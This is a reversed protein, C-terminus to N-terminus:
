DDGDRPAAAPFKAAPRLTHRPMPVPSNMGKVSKWIMENVLVPDASDPHKFDMGAALHALRFAETGPVLTRMAPNLEGVIAADPLIASYPAANGPATDFDLITHATADYLSLPPVGLLQEMTKLVSDTNYFTHDVSNAKIYPSVVYCTSRHADVHDQGDQADDEIVFIATNKWIASHSILDVFQGVGYDNDAVHARPSPDGATTGDTHDSMFRVTLFAPVKSDDTTGPPLMENFEKKFEEFRSPASAKGSTPLYNSYSLTKYNAAAGDIAPADSDPYTLDFERFDYDSIGALDHGPPQVGTVAPYNDPIPLIPPKLGGGTPFALSYFFGYNRFPVSLGTGSLKVNAVVDDWIHGAPAEGADPIAPAGLPFLASLPRGDPDAAPFGGTIFFNNSGEFDYNRGRGSYNYPLNKIVYENAFSGTSWPWGDGSAEGCDYFNDLLVFRSALAHFNPTVHAGPSNGFLTLAPDGNGQPLDGLVQDYTRNEKVIYVVHKIKGASLGIGALPNVAGALAPISNNNLVQQTDAALLSASPLPFTLVNGEIINLIYTGNAGNPGQAASNPNRTQTGKADAVLLRSGAPNVAVATPYWGTPIYGTLSSPLSAVNVVAVANMDGLTAYLTKEDSSLALGTPTAGAITSAATPRLLVTDLLAGSGTDIVSVTDSSANAVYLRTQAQNLLLAVPHAGTPLTTILTPTGPASANLVYVKGDRQSSVFVKSGDRLAAVALPFSPPTAVGAAIPPVLGPIGPYAANAFALENFVFAGVPQGSAANYIALSSPKLFASNDFPAGPAYNENVAVYLYGRGDLAVGAAFQGAPLTITGAMTLSGNVGVTIKAVTGNDGQAAYLTSTGNGNPMVALGYYLGNTKAPDTTGGNPFDLHSVGRGTVTDVAWLSQRFGMDTVLAYRGGPALIMNMPLSGVQQRYAANPLTISKGTVLPNPGQASAPLLGGLLLGGLASAAASRCATRSLKTKM